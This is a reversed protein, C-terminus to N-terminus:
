SVIHMFVVPKESQAWIEKTQHGKLFNLRLHVTNLVNRSANTASAPASFDAVTLLPTCFLSCTFSTFPQYKANILFRGESLPASLM